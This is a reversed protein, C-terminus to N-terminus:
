SARSRAKAFEDLPNVTKKPAAKAGLGRIARGEPTMGISKLYDTYIKQWRIQAKGVREAEVGARCVKALFERDSYTLVGFPVQDVIFLWLQTLAACDGHKKFSEPPDGIPGKTELEEAERDAFRGRNKSVQGSLKLLELNKRPRGM